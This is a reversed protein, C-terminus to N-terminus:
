LYRKLEKQYDTLALAVKVAAYAEEPLRAWHTHHFTPNDMDRPIRLVHFGGTIPQDPHNEEWGIKYGAMQLMTSEYIRGTKWDVICLKGLVLAVLDPTMGFQWVESVLHPEVEVPEVAFTRRWELWSLYSPEAHEVDAKEYSALDPTIGKIDCEILYHAITGPVTASNRAEELTKGDRGAENAWYFLGDKGWGINQGIHTTIGRIRKNAANKYPITPM